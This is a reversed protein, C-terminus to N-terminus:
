WNYRYRFPYPYGYYGHHAYGYSRGYWNGRLYMNWDCDEDASLCIFEEFQLPFSSTENDDENNFQQVYDTYLEKLLGIQEYIEDVIEAKVSSLSSKIISDNQDIFDRWQLMKEDGYNLIMVKTAKILTIVGQEVDNVTELLSVVM